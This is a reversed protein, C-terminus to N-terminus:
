SGILLSAFWLLAKWSGWLLGLSVFLGPIVWLGAAGMREPHEVYKANMAALLDPDTESSAMRETEHANLHDRTADFNM